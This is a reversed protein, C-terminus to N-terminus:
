ARNQHSSNLETLCQEERNIEAALDWMGSRRSEYLLVSESLEKEELTIEVDNLSGEEILRGLRVKKETYFFVTKELWATEKEALERLTDVQTKKVPINKDTM